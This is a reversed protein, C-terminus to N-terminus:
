DVVVLYQKGKIEFLDMGVKEWPVNGNDHLKLTEPGNRPKLDQCPECADCLQKIEKAMGPWFLTGKLRRMMSDYGLHSTHAREKMEARLSKPVLIAEGKLVIGNEISLEDRYDYYPRQSEAVESKTGPWGNRINNILEVMCEDKEMANRIEELRKDPVNPPFVNINLIRYRDSDENELVARSLTDALILKEGKIFQFEIDYRFLKRLIDQLRRPAQSLPKQLISGLPKHDNQVIVKRGYTYQDFRELGFLISLAEKEIQAWNRESKRLSRSAYEVPRGDQLIVAGVADKSSDVQLVVEKNPDFYAIVPANTLMSKIKTFADECESSWIFDTEKRTLAHIPELVKSLDPLFKAMYQVTGCLRKVGPVDTPSPMEFISRVKSDDAKVGDKTILHGHFKIEPLNLVKKSENLVIHREEWREYLKTVKRDLDTKAEEDTLGCGAIIIDDAISFTGELDTLAETLFRQFIESSVKLGFPLRTWRFRGFPTIMTTLLSSKEDLKVHWYAKKVDFKSFTRADNLKPSVDDFTPLRYHERRLAKNLVQPDICVRIDGNPKRPVAMQSVWKTPEKVPVLVGLNVLNDIEKKVDNEIALPLKRCPLAKPQINPDVTLSCEGLDGLEESVVNAIFTENNITILNMDRVTKLGLLCTYDNPVVVFNATHVTGTMPNVIDLNAEGLPKLSSKNWMILRIKTKKVQEKKVYKQNITNIDAASDLQFRIECDNIKMLATVNDKKGTGIAQLWHENEADGGEEPETDFNASVNHVKKCKAKFHNRGKCSICIKGWAPCKEKAQEHSYGCFNCHKIMKKNQYYPKGDQNQGAGKGAVKNVELKQTQSTERLEKVHKNTQEHARCIKIAKELTLDDERLLLEQLKGKASFVLKDRIMRDKEKFNCCDARRRLETLFNDFPDEMAVNWFRHSELVENKRPNCYAQLKTLVEDPKDKQDAVEPNWTFQDYIELVQPGACHLLIATQVKDDKSSSGSAVMYIEFERRWKKFNESVNGDTVNLHGPLRFNAEAM